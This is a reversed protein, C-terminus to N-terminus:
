EDAADSTYLLCINIDNARLMVIDAKKGPSLTGIKGELLFARAGGITAWELAERSRVPLQRFPSNGRLANNRIEQGRARLEDLVGDAHCRREGVVGAPWRIHAM